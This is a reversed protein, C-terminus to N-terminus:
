NKKEIILSDKLFPGKINNDIKGYVHLYKNQGEPTTDNFMNQQYDLLETIDKEATTLIVDDNADSTNQIDSIELRNTVVPVIWELNKNLEFLSNLLPKHEKTNLKVSEVYEDDNIISFDKRLQLYRNITNHIKNESKFNRNSDPIKSLLNDLLDETQFDIDYVRDREVRSKFETVKVDTKIIKIKDAAVITEKIEDEIEKSDFIEEPILDDDLMDIIGDLEDENFSKLMDEEEQEEEENVQDIEDDKNWRKISIINLDQPIGKYEFDIVLPAESYQPSELEIQDNELGIIKGKIIEGGDFSFHISWWTGIEMGNQRAFGPHEPRDVVIIQTISEDELQKDRINLKRSVKNEDVIIIRDNDLYDILFYKNHYISNSESVLKIIAGLELSVDQYNDVSM